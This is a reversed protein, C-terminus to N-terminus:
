RDNLDDTKRHATQAHALAADVPQIYMAECIQLTDRLRDRQHRYFSRHHQNLPYHGKM